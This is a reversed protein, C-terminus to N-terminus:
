NRPQSEAEVPGWSKWKAAQAAAPYGPPFAFVDRPERLGRIPTDPHREFEESAPGAARWTAEDIVIRAGLENALGQLRAALNTTNGIASWIHRDASRIAGVYAEGTAVGVGVELRRGAAPGGPVSLAEVEGVIERAADLARFEKQPLPDPAGFVAMMGDGNFEVVSGLQATVIRSVAETYRSVTKFIEEPLRGESLSTYGRLDVFLVSVVREGATLEGGEVLKAAISGPVYQRLKEQVSRAERLLEEGGFHTLAVSVSAAVVGLHALDTPTYVDGSGKRGLAAFAVLEGSRAVPLLVAAALSGLAARDAASPRLPDLARRRELDIAATRRGLAEFLPSTADFDPTIASGRAYIPAFADGARAYIVCCAPRLLADLKRGAQSILTAADPAASLESALGDIGAQLAHREAFFFRELRPRVVPELRVAALVLLVSVSVQVVNPDLQVRASALEALWPVGTLAGAGLVVLLLTYSATASILRDVDLLQARTVAIFISVPIALLAVQSAQWLWWLDPQLAAAAVSALVPATGVYVGLLVWRMQRRGLAGARRYNRTAVVLVSALLVAGMAPNARAGFELSFPFDLWQSTWTLGLPAFIWPWLPLARSRPWVGEPLCIVARLMLPAWLCGAAARLGVHAYTQEVVPGQFQLTTVTWVLSAPLFTQAMRSRPARLIGLVATLAFCLAVAGVRWVHPDGAVRVTAVGREGAREFAVRLTGDDRTQAFAHAHVRWPMAGRLDVEGVSLVADGPRLAPFAGPSGPTYGAFQPYADPQIPVRVLLPAQLPGGRSAESAFLAFSVLWIPVLLVLLALDQSRLQKM